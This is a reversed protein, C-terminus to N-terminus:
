LRNQNHATIAIAAVVLGILGFILTAGVSQPADMRAVHATLVGILMFSATSGVLLIPKWM